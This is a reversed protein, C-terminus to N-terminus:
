APSRYADLAEPCPPRPCDVDGYALGLHFKLEEKESGTLEELAGIKEQEYPTLPGLVSAAARVPNELLADRFDPDVIANGYVALVRLKEQQTAPM